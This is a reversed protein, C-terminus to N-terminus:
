HREEYWAVLGKLGDGLTIQPTWGFSMLNTSDLVKRFTGDPHTKDFLISGEYGVEASISQALDAISTEKGTGVNIHSTGTVRFIEKADLRSMIFLCSHALDDVYLFERLPKGSGWLQIYNKFIGSQNLVPEVKDIAISLNKSIRSSNGDMWWKALLLKRIVGPLVHSTELDFNDGIGYLNTPMAAIFNTGFQRNYAECMKLGAIKAIGYPENTPELPGSLLATEKIPLPANKPYICSSGLFLLKKVGHLYSHHILHSQIQLNQYIFEAGYKSNAQIGGVKAAAIFVYEPQHTKFFLDVDKPKLLDLDKRSPTLLNNYGRSKLTRVIASGVLGTAGAVFIRSPPKM